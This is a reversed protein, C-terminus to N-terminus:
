GVRWIVDSNHTPTVMSLVGLDVSNCFNSVFLTNVLKVSRKDPAGFMVGNERLQDYPTNIDFPRTTTYVTRRLSPSSQASQVTPLVEAKKTRSTGHEVGDGM